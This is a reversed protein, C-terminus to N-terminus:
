CTGEMGQPDNVSSGLSGMQALSRSFLDDFGQQFGLQELVPEYGQGGSGADLVSLWEEMGGTGAILMSRLRTRETQSVPSAHLRTDAPLTVDVGTNSATDWRQSRLVALWGKDLDDLWSLLQPLTEVDPAYGPIASFVEGTLRLLLSTRLSASPDLPPDASHPLAPHANSGFLVLADSAHEHAPLSRKKHNRTIELFNQELYDVLSREQKATLPVVTDQMIIHPAAESEAAPEVDM